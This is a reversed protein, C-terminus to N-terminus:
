GKEADTETRRPMPQGIPFPLLGQDVAEGVHYPERPADEDKRRGAAEASQGSPDSLQRACNNQTTLKGQARPPSDLSETERHWSGPPITDSVLRGTARRLQRMPLLTM